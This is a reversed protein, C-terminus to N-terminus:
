ADTNEMTRLFIQELSQSKLDLTHIRLNNKYLLDTILAGKNRKHERNSISVILTWYNKRIEKSSELIIGTQMKLNNVDSEQGSVEIVYAARENGRSNDKGTDYKLVGNDLILIRDCLLDIESLIHSSIIISMDKRCNRIIQRLESIQLPDLGSAPEDLILLIINGAQAGAIACRQRFGTSLESIITHEYSKLSFLDLLKNREDDRKSKKYLRISLIFDLYERVTMYEYLPSKESLYGIKEKVRSSHDVISLGDIKVLGSDAMHYGALIKLLTTKGAGNQGLLGTIEGKKLSFSIDKLVSREKYSKSVSEIEIMKNSM